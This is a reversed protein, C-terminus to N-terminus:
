ALALMSLLISLLATVPTFAFREFRTKAFLNGVTNLLFLLAFFWILVRLLAVGGGLFLTKGYFYSFGGIVVLSGISVLEMRVLKGRESIRGGWVVAAPFVGIIVLIHFLVFLASVAAILQGLFLPKAVWEVM